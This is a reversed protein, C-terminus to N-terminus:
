KRIKNSYSKNTLIENTDTRIKSGLINKQIKNTNQNDYKNDIPSSLKNNQRKSVSLLSLLNANKEISRARENHIENM